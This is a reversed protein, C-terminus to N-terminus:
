LCSHVAVHTSPILKLDEVLAALTRLRQAIEETWM